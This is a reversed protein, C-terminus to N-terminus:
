RNVLSMMMTLGPICGPSKKYCLFFLIKHIECTELKVGLDRSADHRRTIDSRGGNLGLRNRLDHGALVDHAQGLGAGAFGRGKGQRDQM